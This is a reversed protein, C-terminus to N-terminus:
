FDEMIESIQSKYSRSSKFMLGTKLKIQYENNKLYKINRIYFKNVIISRHIRFFQQANLKKEFTNLTIRHLYNKESTFIKVYNGDSKIFVINDTKIAVDRKNFQVQITNPQDSNQNSYTHILKQIKTELEIATERKKLDFIRQLSIELREEDFPKLLYDVANIEFAKLAYEDYATTFIVYPIKKLVKLVQFGNIDPMQIDLFILDPDKLQIKEIAEKGNRCEEVVDVKDFKELLTTLRRRALYEDDIIISRLKM